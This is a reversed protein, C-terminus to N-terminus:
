FLNYNLLYLLYGPIKNNVILMYVYNSTRFLYKKKRNLFSLFFLAKRLDPKMLRVHPRNKTGRERFNNQGLKSYQM